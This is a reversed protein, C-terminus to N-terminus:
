VLTVAHSSAAAGHEHNHVRSQLLVSDFLDFSDFSDFSDFKAGGGEGSAAASVNDKGYRMRLILDSQVRGYPTLLEGGSADAHCTVCGGYGHRIMWTYAQAPPAFLAVAILAACISLLRAARASGDAVLM